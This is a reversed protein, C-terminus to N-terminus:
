MASEAAAYAAPQQNLLAGTVVANMMRLQTADSPNMQSLAWAAGAGRGAGMFVDALVSFAM